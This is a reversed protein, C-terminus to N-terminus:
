KNGIAVKWKGDVKVLEFKETSGDKFTVEVVAKDGNITEKTSAIGNKAVLATKAKEGFMAVQSASEPTMVKSYNKADGNEVIAIFQKVVNTPSNSASCGNGTLTATLLLGIFATVSLMKKM